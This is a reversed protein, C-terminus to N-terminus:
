LVVAASLEGHSAALTRFFLDIPARRGRPLDLDTLDIYGDAMSLQKGPPIVYVNNPIVKVRRTVQTVRLGTHSQIVPALSSEHEPSLHMVVVFAIGPADGPTHEFFQELATVGGASAGIGVVLFKSKDGRAVKAQRTSKSSPKARGEVEPPSGGNRGRPNSNTAAM